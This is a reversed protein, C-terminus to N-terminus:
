QYSILEPRPEIAMVDAPSMLDVDEDLFLKYGNVVRGGPILGDKSSLLGYTERKSHRAGFGDVHFVTALGFRDVVKERDPLMYTKFQHVLFIKEPLRHEQVLGSLYASVENITAADLSGIQRGPRQGPELVWEPDIAVGVEPMRLFKEYHKVQDLVRASGPQFDLVVLMKAARAADVYRQVDAHALGVSYRGDRGPARQAVSTILEFAPLVPRGSAQAWEAAREELRRAAEDPTTEGLIGLAGTNATGYHMVVLHDPFIRHGGRPLYPVPPPTPSPSPSPAAANTTAAPKEAAVPAPSTGTACAATLALLAGAALFRSRRPV